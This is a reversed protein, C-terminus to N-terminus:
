SHSFLGQIQQMADDIARKRFAPSIDVGEARVIMISRVGLLALISKLYPEQQDKGIKEPSSYIGGRSSAIYIPKDAVLGVPGTASYRFTRGPVCLRDIWAKLQSPISLNFMPAGVIVADAAMFEDILANTLGLELVLKEDDEPAANYKLCNLLAGELHAIPQAAVDRRTITGEPHAKQWASAIADGLRRTVSHELRPSSDIHLLNM